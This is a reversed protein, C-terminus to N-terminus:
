LFFPTYSVHDLLGGLLNNGQDGLGGRLLELVSGVRSSLGELGPLLGRDEVTLALHEVELEQDAVVHVSNGVRDGQLLALGQGIGAAINETTELDDLRSAGDRVQEHTVGQLDGGVHVGVGDALGKTDNGTDGGEVEGGHDGEPHEGKGVDDSVGTNNLGGLLVGACGHDKGLEGLLSADGGTNQVNDVTGPVCDVKDAIILVDLGDGEDSAVLSTVVDVVTTGAVSLTDLYM